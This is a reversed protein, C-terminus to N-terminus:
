FVFKQNDKGINKEINNILQIVKIFTYCFNIKIHM